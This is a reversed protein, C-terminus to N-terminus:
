SSSNGGTNETGGSSPISPNKANSLGFHSVVEDHMLELLDYEQSDISQASVKGVAVLSEDRSLSDGNELKEEIDVKAHDATSNFAVPDSLATRLLGFYEFEGLPEGAEIKQFLREINIEREEDITVDVSRPVFPNYTDGSQAVILAQEVAKEFPIGADDSGLYLFALTQVFAGLEEERYAEESFEKDNRIAPPRIDKFIQVRDRLEMEEQLLAFDFLSDRVRKRIEYRRNSEVDDSYDKKGRLYQRQDPTLIAPDRDM